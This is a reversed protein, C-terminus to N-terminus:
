RERILNKGGKIAEMEGNRQMIEIAQNIQHENFQGSLNSILNQVM